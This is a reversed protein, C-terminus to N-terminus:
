SHLGQLVIDFVMVSVPVCVCVEVVLHGAYAFLLCCVCARACM